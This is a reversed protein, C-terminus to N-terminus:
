GEEQRPVGTEQGEEGEVQEEEQRRRSRSHGPAGPVAATSSAAFFETFSVTALIKVSSIKEGTM